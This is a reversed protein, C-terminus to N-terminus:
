LSVPTPRINMTRANFSVQNNHILHEGIIINLFGQMILAAVEETKVLTNDTTNNFTESLTTVTPASVDSNM